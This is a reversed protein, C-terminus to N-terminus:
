RPRSANNRPGSGQAPRAQWKSKPRAYSRPADGRPADAGRPADTRRPQDSRPQASRSPGDRRQGQHQMARGNRGNSEDRGVPMPSRTSKIKNSENVFDGPLAEVTLKQRTM